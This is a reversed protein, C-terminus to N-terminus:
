GKGTEKKGKRGEEVITKYLEEWLVIQLLVQFM